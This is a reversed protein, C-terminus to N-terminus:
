AGTSGFGGAGRATPELDESLEFTVRPVALLAGQAIRTGVALVAPRASDNFMPVTLPGRYGHDIVGVCNAPRLGQVTALGSRAFLFLGYGEPVAVQLGTPCMAARGGPITTEESIYFDFCADGPHAYTPMRAESHLPQMRLVLGARRPKPLEAAPVFEGSDLPLGPTKANKM